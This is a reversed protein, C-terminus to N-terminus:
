APMPHPRAVAALRGLANRSKITLEEPVRAIEQWRTSQNREVGLDALIVPENMLRHNETAVVAGTV